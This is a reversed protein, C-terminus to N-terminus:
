KEGLPFMPDNNHEKMHADVANKVASVTSYRVGNWDEGHILSKSNVLPGANWSDVYYRDGRRDRYAMYGRPTRVLTFGRYDGEKVYEDSFQDVSEGIDIMEELEKIDIDELVDEPNTSPKGNVVRRLSYLGKNRSTIVAKSPGDWDVDIVQGVGYKDVAESISILKTSKTTM